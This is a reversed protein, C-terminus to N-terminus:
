NNEHEIKDTKNYPVVDEVVIFSLLIDAVADALMDAGGEAAGVNICLVAILAFSRPISITTTASSQRVKLM